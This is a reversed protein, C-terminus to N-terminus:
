NAADGCRKEATQSPEVDTAIREPAEAYQRGARKTQQKRSLLCAGAVANIVDDVGGRPHGIADKARADRRERWPPLQAWHVRTRGKM